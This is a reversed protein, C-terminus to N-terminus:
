INDKESRSKIHRYVKYGLWTVLVAAGAVAAIMAGGTMTIALYQAGTLGPGAIGYSAAIAGLDTVYLGLSAGAVAAVFAAHGQGETKDKYPITTDYSETMEDNAIKAFKVALKAMDDEVSETLSAVNIGQKKLFNLLNKAQTPNEAIDQALKDLRPDKKLKDGIKDNIKSTIKAAQATTLAQPEENLTNYYQSENIIGALRQMRIFEESLIQKKM